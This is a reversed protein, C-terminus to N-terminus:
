GNFDSFSNFCSQYIVNLLTTKGSGSPGMIATFDGDEVVFSLDQIVPFKNERAGYSKWIHNVELISM